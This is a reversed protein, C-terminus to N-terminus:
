FADFCLWLFSFCFLINEYHNRNTLNIRMLALNVNVVQRQYALMPISGHVTGTLIVPGRMQYQSVCSFILSLIEHTPPKRTSVTM